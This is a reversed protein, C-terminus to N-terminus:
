GQKGCHHKTEEEQQQCGEQQHGEETTSYTEQICNWLLFSYELQVVWNKTAALVQCTLNIACM